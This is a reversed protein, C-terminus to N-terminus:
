NSPPIKDRREEKEVHADEEQFLYNSNGNFM